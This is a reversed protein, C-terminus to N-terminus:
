RVYEFDAKTTVTKSTIISFSNDYVLYIPQGCPVNAGFNGSVQQPTSFYVSFQNGSKLNNFGNQDVIYVKIDDNGGKASFSGQIKCNNSDPTSTVTYYVYQSPPVVITADVITEKHTTLISRLLSDSNLGIILFIISLIVSIGIVIGVIKGM